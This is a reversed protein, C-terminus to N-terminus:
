FRSAPRVLWGQFHLQPRGDGTEIINFGRLFFGKEDLNLIELDYLPVCASEKGRHDPHTLRAVRSPRGPLELDIASAITLQGDIPRGQRLDVPDRRKGNCYVPVVIVWM